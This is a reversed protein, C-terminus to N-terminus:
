ALLANLEDSLQCDLQELLAKNNNKRSLDIGKIASAIDRGSNCNYYHIAQGVPSSEVAPIRISLVELDNSLYTLIKSPFSTNNYEGNPNQTSLGIDCKQLFEFFLRGKYVGEYIIKAANIANSQEIRLKLDELEDPLGNGLIHLVYKSDLHKVMDISSWVGGKTKNFTGAYVIHIKGDNWKEVTKEEYKYIGTAIVYPKNGNNIKHNLLETPFVYKDAIAFYDHEERKERETSQNVDTYIERIEMILSCEKIRKVIRLVTMLSLSHYVVITEKRKVHILLYLFLWVMNYVISLYRGITGSLLFTSPMTLTINNDLARKHSPFFSKEVLTRAPSIIEITRGDAMTKAMYGVINTSALNVSRKEHEYEPLDYFAIYKLKKM